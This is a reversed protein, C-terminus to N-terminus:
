FYKFCDNARIGINSALIYTPINQCFDTSINLFFQRFEKCFDTSIKVLFSKFCEDYVQQKFTEHSKHYNIDQHVKLM